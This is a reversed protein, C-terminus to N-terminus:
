FRAVNSDLSLVNGPQDRPVHEAPLGYTKALSLTTISTTADRYLTM